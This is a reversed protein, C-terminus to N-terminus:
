ALLNAAVIAVVLAAMLLLGWVAVQFIGLLLYLVLAVLLPARRPPAEVVVPLPEPRTLRVPAYPAWVRTAEVRELEEVARARLEPDVLALEPSVQDQERM